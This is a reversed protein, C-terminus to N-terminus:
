IRLDIYRNIIDDLVKITNIKLKKKGSLVWSNDQTLFDPNRKGNLLFNNWLGTNLYTWLITFIPLKIGRSVFNSPPPPNLYM